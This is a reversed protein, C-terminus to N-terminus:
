ADEEARPWGLAPNPNRLRSLYTTRPRTGLDGQLVYHRPDSKTRAVQSGATKLDGFSIARTPCASQCATVVERDAIPRGTRAEQAKAAAIRQLCYNCKEMVGRARVTVDPNRQAALGSVDLGGYLRGSAYDRFNFRRVKYPCNSECFRTGVCRNYVQDNLGMHDHVSAEVPCVPECPAHECQMCPIPVFGTHPDGKPGPDYRDIRIWHLTRGMAIDDPGVIPINNEAQCAIVCANCGICAQTDITMAWAYQSPEQRPLESPPEAASPARGGRALDALTLTPLLEETEGSLRYNAQTVLFSAKGGAKRLRVGSASWALAEGRLPSASVGVNTGIPGAQTRGGGICLTVVGRAQGEMIRVPAKVIRRNAGVFVFDGDSAGLTAADGASIWLSSGWVEKSLPDPCEQLWANDARRGDWLSPSPRLQLVFGDQPSPAPAVLRAVPAAAPAQGPASPIVGSALSKDWWAQPAGASGANAQASAIRLGDESTGQGAAAIAASGWTSKVLDIPATDDEGALVALLSEAPRGDYLPRVLPQVLSAAGDAGRVDSWSELAHALPARWHCAASTEDLSPTMALSFPVRGIANAAAKADPADYVPNADVVVLTRVQGAGLAAMLAQFAQGHAEPNPDVPAMADIPAGLRGNIWAALAHAPPSADRGVLVLARGKAAQLDALAAQAFQAESGQLRASFGPAGLGAALYILLDRLLAPDATLRHDAAAGTVSPSSEAVYIRSMPSGLRRSMIARADAIQRPGPGLPDAGLSVIMDAEAFRPALDLPRGYALQSGALANDDHVSEYRIWRMAPLKAQAQRILRLRTPGTIRGTVLWFGQGGDSEHGALRARLAASLTTWDTPGNPGEIVKARNPDYLDLIAAEAFVDTSGLSMPHNPSGELKIPRGDVTRGIVGRGYGGLSVTTAFRRLRGVALVDDTEVYPLIAERPPSCASLALAAGSALLALAERRDLGRDPSASPSSAWRREIVIRSSM